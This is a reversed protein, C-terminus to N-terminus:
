GNYNFCSFPATTVSVVHKSNFILIDPSQSKPWRDPHQKGKEWEQLHLCTKNVIRNMVGMGPVYDPCLIQLNHVTRLSELLFIYWSRHSARLEAVCRSDSSRPIHIIFEHQSIQLHSSFVGSLIKPVLCLKLIFAMPESHLKSPASCCM